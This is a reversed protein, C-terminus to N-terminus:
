FKWLIEYLSLCTLKIKIKIKAIGSINLWICLPSNGILDHIANGYPNLPILYITAFAHNNLRLPAFHYTKKAFTELELPISWASYM